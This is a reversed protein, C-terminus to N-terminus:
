FYIDKWFNGIVLIWWKFSINSWLVPLLVYTGVVGGGFESLECLPFGLLWKIVWREIGKESRCPELKVRVVCRVFLLCTILSHSSLHDETRICWGCWVM